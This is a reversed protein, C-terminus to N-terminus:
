RQTLAESLCVPLTKPELPQLSNVLCMEPSKLSLIRADVTEIAELEGKIKLVPLNDMTM